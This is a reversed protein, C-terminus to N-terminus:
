EDAERERRELNEVSESDLPSMREDFEGESSGSARDPGDFHSQIFDEHNHRLKYGVAISALGPVMRLVFAPSTVGIQGEVVSLHLADGVLLAGTVLTATSLMALFQKSVM